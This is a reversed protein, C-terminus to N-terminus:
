APVGTAAERTAATRGRLQLIFGAIGAADDLRFAPLGAPLAVPGSSAVAVISDDQACLLPRGLEPRHVEIKTFREHRFGEVLILDLDRSRM